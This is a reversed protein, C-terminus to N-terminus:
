EARTVLAMKSIKADHLSKLVEVVKGYYLREDARVFITVDPETRAVAKLTETLKPLTIEADNLYLAGTQDVSITQGESARIDKTEGPPLKVEIGHEILPFTIIFTILLLFTLDMLPTLNIESMRKLSTIPTRRPV